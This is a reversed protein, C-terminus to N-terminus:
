PNNLLKTLRIVEREAINLKTKLENVENSMDYLAVLAPAKEKILNKRSNEIRVHDENSIFYVNSIAAAETHSKVGLTLTILDNIQTILPEVSTGLPLAGLRVFIGTSQYGVGTGIPYSNLYHLPFSFTKGKDDKVFIIRANDEIHEKYTNIDISYKVYYDTYTDIGIKELQNYESVATCTLATNLPLLNNYPEKLEWLGRSGVLPQSMSM